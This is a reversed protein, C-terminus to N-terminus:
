ASPFGKEKGDNRRNRRALSSAKALIRSAEQEERHEGLIRPFNISEKSSRNTENAKLIKNAEAFNGNKRLEEALNKTLIKFDFHEQATIRNRGLMGELSLKVEKMPQRVVLTHNNQADTFTVIAERPFYKAAEKYANLLEESTDFKKETSYRENWLKIVNDGTEKYPVRGLQAKMYIDSPFQDEAGTDKWYKHVILELKGPSINYHESLFKFEKSKTYVCRM